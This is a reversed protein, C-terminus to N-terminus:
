TVHIRAIVHVEDAAMDASEDEHALSTGARFRAIAKHARRLSPM